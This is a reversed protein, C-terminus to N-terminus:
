PRKVLVTITKDHSFSRPGQDEFFQFMCFGASCCNIRFNGATDTSASAVSVTMGAVTATVNAIGIPTQGAADVVRGRIEGRNQAAAPALAALVMLTALAVSRVRVTM